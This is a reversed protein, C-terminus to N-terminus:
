LLPLPDPWQVAEVDEVTTALTDVFVCLMEAVAHSLKTVYCAQRYVAVVDQADLVVAAGSVTKWPQEWTTDNTAIAEQAGAFAQQLRMRSAMDADFTHGGWAFTGFEAAERAAMFEDKKQARAAALSKAPPKGAIYGGPPSEGRATITLVHNTIPDYWDGRNDPENIWEGGVFRNGTRPVSTSNPGPLVGLRVAMDSLESLVYGDGDLVYITM